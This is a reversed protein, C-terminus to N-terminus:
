TTHRSPRCESKQGEVHDLAPEEQSVDAAIQEAAQHRASRKEAPALM